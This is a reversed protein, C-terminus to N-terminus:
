PAKRVPNQEKWDKAMQIREVTPPHTAFLWVNWPTPALNALNDAALKKEANIFVDPNGALELSAQDAQREFHRSVLNQAPLAAWSGLYILLLIFPVGAPDATSQLNWPAREVAIRLLRDLLFFGLLAALAALAIGKVIHDHRWHGLEHALISEVEAESHKKLLNDFLVIRRTAGFGTFYANSHNSQRSANMVLIEDVPVGAKAILARVRPQLRRWETQSLPTFDNFLPNILVPALFAYAAGLVSGAVPAVLWWTRPLGILLGYLGALIAGEWISNIGLALAHDRLWDGLELNSMGWHRAHYLRAIAIPAWLLEHGILYVAGVGLAALVRRQGTRELFWDALRRGLGTMTLVCLFGLELATAGWFFFRREFAYQLGRDIQETSFDAAHASERAAPYPVFTTLVFLLFFGAAITSVTTKM